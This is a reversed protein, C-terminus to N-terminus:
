RSIIPTPYVQEDVFARKVMGRSHAMSKPPLVNLTKRVEVAFSSADRRHDVFSQVQHRKGRAKNYLDEAGNNLVARARGTRM